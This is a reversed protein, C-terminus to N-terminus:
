SSKRKNRNQDVSLAHGHIKRHISDNLFETISDGKMGYILILVGTKSFGM